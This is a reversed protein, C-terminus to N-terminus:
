LREGGEESLCLQRFVQALRCLDETDYDLQNLRHWCHIDDPVQPPLSSLQASTRRTEPHCREGM